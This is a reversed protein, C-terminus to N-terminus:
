RIKINKQNTMLNWDLYRVAIKKCTEKKNTTSILLANPKAKKKEGTCKKSFINIKKGERKWKEQKKKGKKGKRDKRHTKMVINKLRRGVRGLAVALIPPYSNHQPHQDSLKFQNPFYIGEGGFSTQRLQGQSILIGFPM